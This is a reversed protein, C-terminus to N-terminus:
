QADLNEAFRYGLGYVTEIYVPRGADREIKKRLNRIHADVTRELGEYNFGFAKEVLELRTFAKGPENAMTVLLQFEKRTVGADRGCLRVEHRREDITLDRFQMVRTESPQGNVGKRRLVARVRAVLERPRFPKTVYDDAGLDLARLTDVEAARATVLIIGVDSEQRLLRCVDFGDMEPLMVDLLVLGIPQRRAFELGERGNRAVMVPYGDRDLYLRILEATKPDDEVVLVGPKM